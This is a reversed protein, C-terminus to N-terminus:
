KNYCHGLIANSELLCPIEKIVPYMLYGSPTFYVEKHNLLSTKTVPCQFLTGGNEVQETEPKKIIIVSTPNLPNAVYKLPARKVVDYGLELASDALGRVYGYKEMRKKGEDCAFDYDPEFLLLYKKTIRYLEKLIQDSRGGNSEIAHSTYVVDISCDRIPIASLDGTFLHGTKGGTQYQNLFDKAVKVRSWSIDFGYCNESKCELKTIINKFTTAEGVGAELITIFPENKQLGRIEEVIQNTYKETEDPNKLYADVYSGSQFEYSLLISEASNNENDNIKRLYEIINGDQRYINEVQKLLESKEM